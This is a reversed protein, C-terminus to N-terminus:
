NTTSRRRRGDFGRHRTAHLHGRRPAPLTARDGSFTSSTITLSVARRTSVHGVLGDRQPCRAPLHVPRGCRAHRRPAMADGGPRALRQERRWCEDGRDVYNGNSLFQTHPVVTHPPDIAASRYRRLRRPSACRTSRARTSRRRSARCVSRCCCNPRRSERIPTFVSRGDSRRAARQGARGADHGAHHALYTQVVVGARTSPRGRGHTPGRSQHLRDRRLIRLRGRPGDAALRRLNAASARPDIM